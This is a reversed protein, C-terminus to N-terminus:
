RMKQVRTNIYYRKIFYDSPPHIWESYLTTESAESAWGCHTFFTAFWAFSAIWLPLFGIKIISLLLKRLKMPHEASTYADLHSWVKIQLCNRLLFSAAWLTTKNSRKVKTKASSSVSILSGYSSLVVLSYTASTLTQASLILGSVKLAQSITSSKGWSEFCHFYKNRITDQLAFFAM